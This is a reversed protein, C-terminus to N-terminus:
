LTKLKVMSSGTDQSANLQGVVSDSVLELVTTMLDAIFIHHVATILYKGSRMDGTNTDGQQVGTKATATPLELNIVTGARLQVDGHVTGIMRYSTLQALRLAKQHLWNWPQSPNVTSDSDTMPYIKILYDPDILTQKFRNKAANINVNDNLLEYNTANLKIDSMVGNVLDYALLRSTYGGQQGTQIVDFDKMIKLYNFVPANTDAAKNLKMSSAYHSYIPRAIMSEYSEFNYGDATEYFLYLSGNASFGRTALWQIAEFPNMRPVIIDFNGQTDDWFNIKDDQVGLRNVLIDNVMDSIQMGKYAKSVYSQTSLIMEESCFHLIYNQMSATKFERDSIKYVRFVKQIPNNLGPKDVQLVIWENGHLKFNNLLDQADGMLISGSMCPSFIDEYLNLEVTQSRIDIYTGDSTILTLTQIVYDSAQQLGPLLTTSSQSSSQTVESM